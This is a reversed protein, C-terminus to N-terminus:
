SVITRILWLGAFLAIISLTVSATLYAMAALDRGREILVAFDLAFASFTTFGGLFGTTLFARVEQSVSYKLAVTEIVAGMFFSGAVNVVLTSWPFGTALVRAVGVGTLYRAAAGLAGGMAVLVMIAM